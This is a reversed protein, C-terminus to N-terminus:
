NHRLFDAGVEDKAKPIPKEEVENGYDAGYLAQTSLFDKDYIQAIWAYVMTVISQMFATSFWIIPLAAFLLIAPNQIIGSLGFLIATSALISFTTGYVGVLAYKYNSVIELILASVQASIVLHLAVSYAINEYNVSYTIFYIPAMLLFIIVSIIFIQYIASSTRKYKERETLSLLFASLINGITSALFIMALLIFVFIPSIYNEVNFSTISPMASSALIFILLLILTGAVGGATAAILKLLFRPFSIKPPSIEETM